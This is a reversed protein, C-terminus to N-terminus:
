SATEGTKGVKPSAAAAIANVTRPEGVQDVARGAERDRPVSTVLEGAAGGYRQGLRGGAVKDKERVRSFLRVVHAEEGSGAPHQVARARTM